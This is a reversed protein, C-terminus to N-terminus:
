KIEKISIKKASRQMAKKFNTEGIWHVQNDLFYLINQNTRYAFMIVNSLTSATMTKRAAERSEIYYIGDVAMQTLVVHSIDPRMFDPISEDNLWM